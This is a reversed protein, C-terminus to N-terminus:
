ARSDISGRELRHVRGAVVFLVVTGLPGLLGAAVLIPTYSFHDVVWGTSMTFIMAGLGAATGAFGAISGVAEVAFFDGPLTQVNGVWFQFGFLTVSICALAQVPSDVYAAGIGAPMLAAGIIIATKRARDVSWGAALLRGSTWGGTLSGVGAAVFPV